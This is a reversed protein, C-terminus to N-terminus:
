ELCVMRGIFINEKVNVGSPFSSVVAHYFNGLDKKKETLTKKQRARPGGRHQESRASVFSTVLENRAVGLLAIINMKTTPSMRWRKSDEQKEAM